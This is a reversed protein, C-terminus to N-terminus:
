QGVEIWEARAAELADWKARCSPCYQEGPVAAKECRRCMVVTTARNTLLYLGRGVSVVDGRSIAIRLVRSVTSVHYQSSKALMATTFPQVLDKASDMIHRVTRDTVLKGVVPGSTQGSHDSCQCRRQELDVIRDDLESCRVMIHHELQDLEDGVAREIAEVVDLSINLGEDTKM